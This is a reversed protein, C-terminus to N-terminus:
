LNKNKYIQRFWQVSQETYIFPALGPGGSGCGGGQGTGRTCLPSRSM